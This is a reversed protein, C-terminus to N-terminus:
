GRATCGTSRAGMFPLIRLRAQFIMLKQQAEATPSAPLFATYFSNSEVGLESSAFPRYGAIAELESASRVFTAVEYGLSTRLHDEIRDTPL